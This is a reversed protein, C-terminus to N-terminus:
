AAVVASWLTKRAADREMSVLKANKFMDSLAQYVMDTFDAAGSKYGADRCAQTVEEISLQRPAVATLVKLIVADLTEDNRFRKHGATKNKSGKPRGRSRKGDTVGAVVAEVGASIKVAGINDLQSASDELSKALAVLVDSQKQAQSLIVAADERYQKAQQRLVASNTSVKSSM